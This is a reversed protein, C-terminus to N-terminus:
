VVATSEIELLAEKEVLGSVGVVAMAPYNKGMKERYARGVEALNERYADLDRVFWTMRVVHEPGAGAEALVALTNDLIQELQAVFGGAFRQREDWGIMGAVFVLRGEAAIGNAYGKPRPWGPPLLTAISRDPGPGTQATSNGRAPQTKM